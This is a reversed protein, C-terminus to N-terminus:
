RRLAASICAHTAEDPLGETSRAVANYHIPASFRQARTTVTKTLAHTAEGPLGETSRAVANYHIPASFRQARTAVKITGLKTNTLDNHLSVKCRHNHSQFHYERM